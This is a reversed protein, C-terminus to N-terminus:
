LGQIGKILLWTGFGLALVVQIPRPGTLTTLILLFLVPSIAAAAALPVIEPLLSGIDDDAVIM